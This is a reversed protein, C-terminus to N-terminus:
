FIKLLVEDTKEKLLSFFENIINYVLEHTGRRTTAQRCCAPEHQKESSKKPRIWAYGEGFADRHSLIAVNHNPFDYVYKSGSYINFIWCDIKLSWLNM